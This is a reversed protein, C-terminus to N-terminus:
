NPRCTSHWLLDVQRAFQAPNGAASSSFKSRLEGRLSGLKALDQSHAIAQRIYEDTNACSWADLRLTRLLSHTQRGALTQGCLTLVPVGMCLAECSTMGGSFPFTDLAIDIMGYERLMEVHPSHGRLTIRSAGIGFAAFKAILNVRVQEDSLALAKLFLRSNPLADLIRAWTGIVQDNLKALNNFSGFTIESNQLAPLPAVPPAYEPLQYCFRSDPLYLPQESFHERLEAPTTAPDTVFYDISRLGTTNFYGIWSAQRAAPKMAFVPLRHRASHGALDVLLDLQDTRVQEAVAHHSQGAIDRWHEALARLQNTREDGIAVDSYIFLEITQREYHALYPQLLYAVPHNRLDPSMFGVRLRRGPEPPLAASPASPYLHAVHREAWQRHENAIMAADFDPLYNLAFVRNSHARDLQPDLELARQYASVAEDARGTIELSMGLNSWSEAHDPQLRLAENFSALAESIAGQEKLTIGLNNWASVQAPDLAIARRYAAIAELPQGSDHLTLGFNCWTGADQDDLRLAENFQAVAEVLRQQQWLLRGTSSRLRAHSPHSALLQEASQLALLPEGSQELALVLNTAIDSQAPALQLAKRFHEIADGPRGIALLYNGLNNRANAHEPSADVARRGAAIAQDLRGQAQLALGLNNLAQPHRPQITLAKRLQQEGAAAQGAALLAEGYNTLLDAHRPSHKACREFLALADALRGQQRCAVALLHLADPQEPAVALIQRYIAEAAAVDGGRHKAIAMQLAQELTVSSM